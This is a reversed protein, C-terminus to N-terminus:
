AGPSATPPCGPSLNPPLRWLLAGNPAVRLRPRRISDTLSSARHRHEARALPGRQVVGVRGPDQRPHSPGRAHSDNRAPIDRRRATSRIEQAKKRDRHYEYANLWKQVIEDSNLLVGDAVFQIKGPMTGNFRAKERELYRQFDPDDLRRALLNRIKGFSTEEDVLIFPRVAHLLARFSDRAPEEVIEFRAGRQRVAPVM